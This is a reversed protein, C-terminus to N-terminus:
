RIFIESFDDVAHEGRVYRAVRTWAESAIRSMAKENSLTDHIVSKLDSFDWRVPVYTVGPEYLDPMTELHGMNPKILVAGTQFAEIDRWCLEGYGFPSFCLKSNTLEAMFAAQSLHGKPSCKIGKIAEVQARAGARMASYWPTGTVGLRSHLDILRNSRSPMEGFHFVKSFRASTFFNPGLRLKPLMSQPVEWDVPPGVEIGYLDSYFETINTDGRRPILYENRDVFLSKKYYLDIFQDLSRGLRLDNHAYSDFFVIKVDPQKDRLRHLADVLYNQDINFWPQLVVIDTPPVIGSILDNITRCRFEAGYRDFFVDSYHFFPEIQSRCIPDPHGYILVRCQSKRSFPRALFARAAFKYVRHDLVHVPARYNAM